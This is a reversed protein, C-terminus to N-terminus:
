RLMLFRKFIQTDEKEGKREKPLLMKMEKRLGYIIYVVCIRCM